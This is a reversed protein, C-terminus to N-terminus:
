PKTEKVRVVEDIGRLNESELKNEYNEGTSMVGKSIRLGRLVHCM